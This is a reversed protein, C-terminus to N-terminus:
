SAEETPVPRAQPRVWMACLVNVRNPDESVIVAVLPEAGRRRVAERATELPDGAAPVSRYWCQAGPEPRPGLIVPAGTRKRPSM